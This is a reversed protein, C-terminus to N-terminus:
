RTASHEAKSPEDSHVAVDYAKPLQVKIVLGTPILNAAWIKGGHLRIAEAAIALGLGNGGAAEEDGQIRFFPQFIAELSDEPVGPGHDRVSLLAVPEVTSEDIELVVEVDTGPQTFRVANRIV